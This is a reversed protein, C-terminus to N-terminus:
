LLEDIRKLTQGANPGLRRLAHRKVQQLTVPGARLIQGAYQNFGDFIDAM